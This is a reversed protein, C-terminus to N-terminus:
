CRSLYGKSLSGRCNDNYALWATFGDGSEHQRTNYIKKACQVDDSIDNNLLNRCAINCGSRKDCWYRRSIQFIGFDDTQSNIARTNFGSEHEVICVWKELQRGRIGYRYKLEAAFTCRTFIKCTVTSFMIAFLLLYIRVFIAM